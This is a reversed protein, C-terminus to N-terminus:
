VKAHGEGAWIVVGRGVVVVKGGRNFKASGKAEGADGGCTAKIVAVAVIPPAVM